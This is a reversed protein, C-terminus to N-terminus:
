GAESVYTLINLKHLPLFLILGSSRWPYPITPPIKCLPLSSRTDAMIQRTGLETGM